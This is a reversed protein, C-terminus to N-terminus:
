CVVLRDEESEEGGECKRRKRSFLHMKLRLHVQPIVYVRQYLYVVFYLHMQRHPHVVFLHMECVSVNERENESVESM